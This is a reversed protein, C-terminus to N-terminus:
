PKRWGAVAITLQEPRRVREGRGDLTVSFQGDPEALVEVHRVAPRGCRRECGAWHVPLGTGGNPVAGAVVDHALRQVDANAKACHPRGACSTVDVWASGPDAVLGATGPGALLDALGPYAVPRSPGPDPRMPPDVLLDPV